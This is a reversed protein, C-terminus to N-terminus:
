RSPLLMETLGSSKPYQSRHVKSEGDANKFFIAGEDRVDRFKVHRATAVRLRVRPPVDSIRHLSEELRGTLLAREVLDELLGAIAELVVAPVLGLEHPDLVHAHAQPLHGRDLRDGILGQNADEFLVAEAEC